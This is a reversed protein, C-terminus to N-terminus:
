GWLDYKHGGFEARPRKLFLLLNNSDVPAISDVTSYM